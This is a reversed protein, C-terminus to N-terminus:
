TTRTTRPSTLPAPEVPRTRPNTLLAAAAAKPAAPLDAARGAVKRAPRDAARGAVKRDAPRVLTAAARAAPMTAAAKEELMAAAAAKGAPTEAEVGVVERAAPM